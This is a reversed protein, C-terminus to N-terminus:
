KSGADINAPASLVNKYKEIKLENLVREIDDQLLDLKRNLFMNIVVRNLGLKKALETQKIGRMGLTARILLAAKHPDYTKTVTM